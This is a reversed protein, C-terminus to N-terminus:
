RVDPQDAEEPLPDDHEEGRDTGFSVWALARELAHEREHRDYEVLTEWSGTDADHLSVVYGEGQYTLDEVYLEEESDTSLYVRIQKGGELEERRTWDDTPM